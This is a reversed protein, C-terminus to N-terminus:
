GEQLNSRKCGEKLANFVQMARRLHALPHEWLSMLSSNWIQRRWACRACTLLMPLSIYILRLLGFTSALALYTEQRLMKESSRAWSFPCNEEETDGLKALNSSNGMTKLSSHDLSLPRLGTVDSYFTVLSSLSCSGHYRMRM